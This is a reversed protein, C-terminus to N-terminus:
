GVRQLDMGVKSPFTITSQDLIVSCLNSDISSLHHSTSNDVPVSSLTRQHCSSKVHINVNRTETYHKKQTSYTSCIYWRHYHCANCHLRIMQNDCLDYEISAPTGFRCTYCFFLQIPVKPFINQLPHEWFDQLPLDM